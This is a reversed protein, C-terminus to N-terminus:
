LLGVEQLKIRKRIEALIVAKDGNTMAQANWNITSAKQGDLDNREQPMESGTQWPSQNTYDNNSMSGMRM